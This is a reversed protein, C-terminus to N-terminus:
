QIVFRQWNQSSLSTFDVANRLRYEGIAERRLASLVAGVGLAEGIDRALSRIYTGSGVAADLTLIPYNYWVATLRRIVVKRAELQVTKGARAEEYAKRGKVKIASFQPPVQLIEGRFKELALEIDERQPIVVERAPVLEGEIDNTNSRIGLRVVARYEKPLKMFDASKKTYEGVLVVLLGEAFPDLTGAHGVREGGAFFRIEEVIDHSTPGPPKNILLFGDM